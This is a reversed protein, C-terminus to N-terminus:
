FEFYLYNEQHQHRCIQNRHKMHGSWRSVYLNADDTAGVQLNVTTLHPLFSKKLM